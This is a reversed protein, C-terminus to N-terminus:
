FLFKRVQKSDNCEDMLTNISKKLAPHIYEPDIEAMPVLAFMREHIKPHPIILQDTKIIKDDYFLIDIDIIRSSYLNDSKERGMNREIRLIRELLEVPKLTTEIKLVRNLFYIDHKFGWPETEYLSSRAIIKIGKGPLMGAAKRLNGTRDGLNGGLLLYAESM